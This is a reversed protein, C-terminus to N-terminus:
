QPLPVGAARCVIRADFLSPLGIFVSDGFDGSRECIQKVELWRHLLKCPEFVTGNIDKFVLYLRSALKLKKRGSEGRNLGQLARAIHEGIEVCIRERDVLSVSNATGAAPAQAPTSSLYGSAGGLSEVSPSAGEAPHVVEFGRDSQLDAQLNLLQNSLDEVRLTLAALEARLLRLEASESM